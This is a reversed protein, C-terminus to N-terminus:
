LRACVAADPGHAVMPRKAPSRVAPGRMGAVLDRDSATAVDPFDRRGPQRRSFRQVIQGAGRAVAGRSVLIPIGARGPGRQYLRGCPELDDCPGNVADRLLRPADADAHAHDDAAPPGAPGGGARCDPGPALVHGVMSGQRLKFLASCRGVDCPHTLGDFDVKGVPEPAFLRPASDRVVDVLQLLMNRAPGPDFGVPGAVLEVQANLCK